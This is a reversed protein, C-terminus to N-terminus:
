PILLVKTAERSDFMEYGREAELLPLRHSIIPSPDLRGDLVAQMSREWWAHVPTIGAFRVTLARAWYVGLQVQVSEGAYMGVVVVEGGRRVMDIASEFAQPTGVAELVVDAGRDKTAEAAATSPNRQAIDIPTAGAAAALELRARDSDVALVQAAGTALAALVCFYGVPGCGVVAVTDGEEIKAISAAYYGTTLTDGVFLAKEDTVDGPVALLNVDANPVRLFEAQAGPLGGGFAGAGLNRFDECLQTQGRMCFWCQGCVVNFAVVVRDGPSFRRVGPGAQRVVGVAEHGLGEGPYIPAKGHLFHLDSGCIASVTVRIIADNADEIVPEAVEAVRVKGLGDSQVALM